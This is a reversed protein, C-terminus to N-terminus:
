RGKICIRRYPALIEDFMIWTYILFTSFWGKSRSLNSSYQQDQFFGTAVQRTEVSLNNIECTFLKVLNFQNDVLLCDEKPMSSPNLLCHLIISACWTNVGIMSIAGSLRWRRSAPLTTATSGTEAQTRMLFGPASSACSPFRKKPFMSPTQATFKNGAQNKWIITITFLSM